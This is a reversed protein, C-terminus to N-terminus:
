LFERQLAAEDRHISVSAADHSATGYGGSSCSPGSETNAYFSSAPRPPRGETQKDANTRGSATSAPLTPRRGAFCSTPENQPLILSPAGPGKVAACPEHRVPQQSGPSSYSSVMCCIEDILLTCDLHVSENIILFAILILSSNNNYSKFIEFM